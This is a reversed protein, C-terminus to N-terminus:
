LVRMLCFNLSILCNCYSFMRKTTTLSKNFVYNLIYDEKKKFEFKENIEEGNVYIVVEDKFSKNILQIEKNAESNSIKGNINNIKSIKLNQLEKLYEEKEKKIEELENKITNLENIINNYEDTKEKLENEYKENKEKTTLYKERLVIERNELEKLNRQIEDM